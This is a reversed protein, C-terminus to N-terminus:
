SSFHVGKQGKLVGEAVAGHCQWMHSFSRMTWSGEGAKEGKLENGRSGFWNRHNYMGHRLGPYSPHCRTRLVFLSADRAQTDRQRQGRHVGKRRENEKSSCYDGSLTRFSELVRCLLATLLFILVWLFWEPTMSLESGLVPPQPLPIARLGFDVGGVSYSELLFSGWMKKLFQLIRYSVSCRSQRWIM